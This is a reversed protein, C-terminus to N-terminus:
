KYGSQCGIFYRRKKEPAVKQSKGHSNYKDKRWEEIIEVIM